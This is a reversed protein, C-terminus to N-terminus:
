VRAEPYAFASPRPLRPDIHRRLAADCVAYGWNILREQVEPELRKLRTPLRALAMTREFPCDLPDGLQYDAINTQIGGYTGERDHGKFSEIVQRKRLSRVQNDILHVIRYAHRAWTTTETLSTGCHYCYTAGPPPHSGSAPRMWAISNGCAACFRAGERNKM